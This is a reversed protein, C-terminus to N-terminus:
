ATEKNTDKNTDQNYVEEVLQSMASVLNANESSLEEVKKQIIELDTLVEEGDRYFKGDSYSDGVMITRGAYNKLTDSEAKADSWWEVNVVIGNEIRAMNKAM